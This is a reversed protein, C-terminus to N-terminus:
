VTRRKVQGHVFRHEDIHTAADTVPARVPQTLASLANSRDGSGSRTRIRAEWGAKAWAERSDTGALRRATFNDPLIADRQPEAALAEAAQALYELSRKKPEICRARAAKASSRGSV